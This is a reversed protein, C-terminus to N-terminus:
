KRNKMSKNKMTKNKMTKGKKEQGGRMKKSSSNSKYSPAAKKLAEGFEIKNEKAYKKVHKIWSSSAM